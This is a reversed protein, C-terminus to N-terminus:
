ALHLAFTWERPNYSYDLAVTLRGDKCMQGGSREECAEIWKGKLHMTRKM